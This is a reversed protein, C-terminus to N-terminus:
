EIKVFRGVWDGLRVFYIGLPLNSIDIRQLSVAHQTEVSLVCEGLINFINIGETYAPRLGTEVNYIIEIYDIAPNPFISLEDSIKNNVNLTSEDYRLIEGNNTFVLCTNKSPMTVCTFHPEYGVKPYPNLLIWNNGSNTTKYLKGDIGSVYGKYYDFFFIDFLLSNIGSFRNLQETWTWGGDTTKLIRDYLEYRKKFGISLLWGIKEDKFYVVTIGGAPNPIIEWSSGFDYSILFVNQNGKLDSNIIILNKNPFALNWHQLIDFGLNLFVVKDWIKGGNVTKYLSNDTLVIGSDKSIFSIVRVQEKKGISSKQWTKGSDESIIFDGLSCGLIINKKDLYAITHVELQENNKGKFITDSYIQNWTKGGDTSNVFYSKAFYAVAFCNNSDLCVADTYQWMWKNSDVISWGDGCFASVTISFFLMFLTTISKKM